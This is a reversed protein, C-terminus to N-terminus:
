HNNKVQSAKNASSGGEGVSEEKLGAKDEVAQKGAKRCVKAFHNLGGCALCSKGIAPCSRGNLHIMGCATCQPSFRQMKRSKGGPSRKRKSGTQWKKNSTIQMVKEDQDDDATLSKGFVEAEQEIRGARELVESIELRDETAKKALNRDTLGALFQHRFGISGHAIGVRKALDRLKVAYDHAGEGEGQKRASYRSFDTSVDVLSRFYSNLGDSLAQYEGSPFERGEHMPPLKLMAILDRVENGVCMYLLGTRQGDSPVGDLISISIEFTTKWKLWGEYKESQKLENSFAAPANFKGLKAKRQPMTVRM